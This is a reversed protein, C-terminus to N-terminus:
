DRASTAPLQRREAALARRASLAAGGAAVVEAITLLLRSALALALASGTSVFPGLGAVIVAERVGLGSPAVVAFVGATSALAYTGLVEVLGLTGLDAQGAVLVALHSGLFTWALLCWGVVRLVGRYSFPHRIGPRRLLRLLLDVLRSLVPPSACVLSVPVLAAILWVYPTTAAALAPLGMLGVTLAATTSLGILVLSAAFSRARPIHARLALEMQLVIAWLSGPLYKGLQGVLLIRGSEVVPVEHDLEHLVAHWAMVTACMGAIALAMSALVTGPRLSQLTSRVDPWLEAVAFGISVAIAVTVLLRLATVALSKKSRGIPPATPSEATQTLVHGEPAETSM